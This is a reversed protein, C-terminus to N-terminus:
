GLDTKEYSEICKNMGKNTRYMWKEESPSM